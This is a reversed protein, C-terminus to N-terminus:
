NNEIEILILFVFFFNNHLIIFLNKAHKNLPLPMTESVLEISNKKKLTWPFSELLTCEIKTEHPFFLNTKKLLGM